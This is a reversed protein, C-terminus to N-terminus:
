KVALKAMLTDAKEQAEALMIKKPKVEKNVFYFSYIADTWLFICVCAQSAKKAAELTFFDQAEQTQKFNTLDNIVKEPINEKDYTELRKIFNPDNLLAKSTEWWNIEMKMTQDNKTKVIDSPKMALIACARCIVRIAQPPQQFGKLTNIERPDLVKLANQASELAPLAKDLDKQCDEKIATAEDVAVQVVEAEEHVVAKLADAQEKEKSVVIIKAETEEKAKVM